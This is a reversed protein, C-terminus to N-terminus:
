LTEMEMRIASAAHMETVFSKPQDSGAAIGTESNCTAAVYLIPRSTLIQRSRLFSEEENQPTATVTEEGDIREAVVCVARIANIPLGFVPFLVSKLAREPIRTRM